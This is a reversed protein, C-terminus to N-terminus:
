ARFHASSSHAFSYTLLAQEAALHLPYLLCIGSSRDRASVNASIPHPQLCKALLRGPLKERLFVQPVSGQGFFGGSEIVSNSSLPISSVGMMISFCVTFCLTTSHNCINKTYLTNISALELLKM